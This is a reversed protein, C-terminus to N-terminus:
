GSRSKLFVTLAAVFLVLGVVCAGGGVVLANMSGSIGDALYRAKDEPAIASGEVADFSSATGHITFLIGVLPAGLFLLLGASM